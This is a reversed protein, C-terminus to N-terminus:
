CRSRPTRCRVSGVRRDWRRDWRGIGGGSGSRGASGVLGSLLRGLPAGPVALLVGDADIREPRTAPGCTLHFPGGGARQVGRVVTSPRLTAGGRELDAVLADILAAVGGRLGAFVPGGTTGAALASAHGLLSGGGRAREYLAPAVAAFSLQRAQGAYVGGLLPELLRDTVEPGFRRDVYAGIAVDEDFGEAAREPEARAAAFGAASLLPRLQELDTPVGLVSAPLPRPQGGVLVAPRAATPHVLRDGLGLEGILCVAEPRRALMSEAGADLRVGGVDVPALKGGWRGSGELVTVEFGSALLRRAAALGTVGGGVVVVRSM